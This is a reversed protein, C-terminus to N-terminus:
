IYKYYLNYVTKKSAFDLKPPKLSKVKLTKCVNLAKEILSYREDEVERTFEELINRLYIM